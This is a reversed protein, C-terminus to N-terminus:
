EDTNEPKNKLFLKLDNNENYLFLIDRSLKDITTYLDNLKNNCADALIYQHETVVDYIKSNKIRSEHIGCWGGDALRVYLYLKQPVSM